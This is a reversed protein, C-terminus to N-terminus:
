TRSNPDRAVTKALTFFQLGVFRKGEAFDSARRGDDGGPRFSMDGVATARALWKVFGRQQDESANGAVLARIAALETPSTETINWPSSTDAQGKIVPRRKAETM